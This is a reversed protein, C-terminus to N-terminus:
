NVTRTRESIYPLDSRFYWKRQRTRTYAIPIVQNADKSHSNLQGTNLLVDVRQSLEIASGNKAHQNM